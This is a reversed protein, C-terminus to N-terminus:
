GEDPVKVWVQSLVVRTDPDIKTRLLRYGAALMLDASAPHCEVICEGDPQWAPQSRPPALKAPRLPAALRNLQDRHRLEECSWCLDSSLPAPEGCVPCTGPLRPPM